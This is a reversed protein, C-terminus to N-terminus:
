VNCCCSYKERDHTEPSMIGSSVESVFSFYSYVVLLRWAVAVALLSILGAKENQDESVSAWDFMAAVAILLAIAVLEWIM